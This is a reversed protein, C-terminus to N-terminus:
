ETAEEFEDGAEEATDGMEEAAEDMKEGAEEMTDEMSPEGGQDQCGVGVAGLVLVALTALMAITKNLLTTM